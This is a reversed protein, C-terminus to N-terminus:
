KIHDTQDKKEEVIETTTEIIEIIETNHTEITEFNNTETLISIIIDKLM